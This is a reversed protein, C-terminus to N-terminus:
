SEDVVKAEIIPLPLAKYAAREELQKTLAAIRELATGAELEVTGSHTVEQKVTRRDQWRAEGPRRQREGRNQLYM